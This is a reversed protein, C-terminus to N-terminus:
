MASDDAKWNTRSVALTNAIELFINRAAEWGGKQSGNGTIPRFHLIEYHQMKYTPIETHASHCMLGSSHRRHTFILVTHWHIHEYFNVNTASTQIRLSFHAGSVSYHQFVSKLKDQNL